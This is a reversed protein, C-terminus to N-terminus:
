TCTANGCFVSGETGGKKEKEATGGPRGGGTGVTQSNLIKTETKEENGGCECLFCTGFVTTTFVCRGVWGVRPSRSQLFLRNSFCFYKQLIQRFIRFILRFKESINIDSRHLLMYIKYIEDLAKWRINEQLIQRRYLLSRAKYLKIM